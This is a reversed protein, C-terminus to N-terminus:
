IASALKILLFIIYGGFIIPFAFELLDRLWGLPTAMQWYPSLYKERAAQISEDLRANAAAERLVADDPNAGSDTADPETDSFLRKRYEITRQSLLANRLAIRRKLFDSSAYILFSLWFYAVAGLAILVIFVRHEPAFEIDLGSIRNPVLGTKEMIFGLVSSALLGTRVRRTTPALPDELRVEPTTPTEM